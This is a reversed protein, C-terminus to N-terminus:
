CGSQVGEARLGYQASTYGREVKPTLVFDNRRRAQPFRVRPNSSRRGVQHRRVELEARIPFPWPEAEIAKGYGANMRASSATRLSTASYHKGDKRGPDALPDDRDGGHSDQGDRSDGGRQDDGRVIIVRRNGDDLGCVLMRLNQENAGDLLGAIIEDDLESAGLGPARGLHGLRHARRFDGGALDLRLQCLRLRLNVAADSRDDRGDLVVFVAERVEREHRGLVLLVFEGMELQDLDDRKTIAVGEAGNGDGALGDQDGDLLGNLDRHDLLRRLDALGFDLV